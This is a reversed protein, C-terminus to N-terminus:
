FFGNFRFLLFSPLGIQLLWLIASEVRLKPCLLKMLSNLEKLHQSKKTSSMTVLLAARTTQDLNTCPVKREDFIFM